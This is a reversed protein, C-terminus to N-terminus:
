QLAPMKCAILRTSHDATNFWFSLENGYATFCEFLSKKCGCPYIRKYQRRAQRILDKKLQEM